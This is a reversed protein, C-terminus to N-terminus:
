PAIRPVRLCDSFYMVEHGIRPSRATHRLMLRRTKYGAYLSRIERADDYSVVWPARLKAVYERVGAHDDPGYANLYLDRGARYYPPDLYLLSRSRGTHESVVDMADVGSLSISKRYTALRRVRCILESRNFRADIRWEGQQAKGGIMGANLIGSHSTRNLFFFAFGLSLRDSRDRSSSYIAKQRRWEHPTVRVAQLLSVFKETRNLIGWWFAHVAPDLDNLHIRSVQGSFLLSLALSGGGAYPEVYFPPQAYNAEILRSFFGSLRWKGGPYRLPSATRM